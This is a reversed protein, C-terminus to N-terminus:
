VNLSALFKVGVNKMSPKTHMVLISSQFSGLTCPEMACTGPSVPWTSFFDDFMSAKIGNVLTNDDSTGSISEESHQESDMPDPKPVITLPPPVPLSKQRLLGANKGPPFLNAFMEAM